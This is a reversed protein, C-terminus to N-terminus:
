VLDLLRPTINRRGHVIRAVYITQEAPSFRYVIVYAAIAWIRMEPVFRPRKAGTEPFDILHRFAARFRSGYRLAVSTGAVRALHALIEELDGRAQPAVVLRVM